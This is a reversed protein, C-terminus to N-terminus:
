DDLFFEISVTSAPSRDKSPNSGHPDEWSLNRTMEALENLLGEAYRRIGAASYRCGDKCQPFACPASSISGLAEGVQVCPDAEFAAQLAAVITSSYLSHPNDNCTRGNYKAIDKHHRRVINRMGKDRATMFSVLRQYQAVTILQLLPNSDLTKLSAFPVRRAAVGAEEERGCACLIAYMQIPSLSSYTSPLYDRHIDLVDKADYKDALHLVSALIKIDNVLPNRVPYIIQLFVELAEPPDHVDVIHPGSIQQPASFMDRFVPSAISLVLKHARFERGGSARLIVDAGPPDSWGTTMIFTTSLDCTIPLAM